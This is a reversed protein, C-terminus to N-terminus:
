RSMLRAANSAINAPNSSGFLITDIVGDRRAKMVHSLAEEGSISKSSFVSMAMNSSKGAAFSARVAEVSPNMRFGAVNYNACM